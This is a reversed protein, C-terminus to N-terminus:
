LMPLQSINKVLFCHLRWLLFFALLLAAPLVILFSYKHLLFIGKKFIGVDKFFIESSTPVIILSLSKTFHRLLMALPLAVNYLAVEELTRFYTIILTDIYGIASGLVAGITLPLGFLLLKKFLRVDFSFKLKMFLPNSKYFMVFYTGGAIISAILYALAPALYSLGLGLFLITVLLVLFMQFFTTVKGIFRPTISPMPKVLNVILVGGVLMVDRSVVLIMFWVPLWGQATLMIYATLLLLKDAVPDIFTGFNSQANLARALIGDLADSLASVIFISLPIWQRGSDSSDMYYLSAAFFPVMIIRFLTIINPLATKM